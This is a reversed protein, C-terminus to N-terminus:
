SGGGFVDATFASYWGVAHHATRRRVEASEGVKSIFMRVTKIRGGEPVFTLANTFADHPALFTYCSNFLHPPFQRSGTLSAAIAFACAKAQSNASFASKPMDGGIISDGVVHIGPQLTSEFTVPDVPCWGSADTLGAKEGILGAKQAPIINAVAARFTEGETVVSRAAVDVAKIAGIFQSPLWEIMGPYHRSWADQFLEQGSFKDKADLILIKSKPKFQKFYYAVLSAREYPAPPCRFPNPPAAIVFVGGDDMSKLQRRLLESQPGAIWAHPMIKAAAEDYGEIEGFKFAIGPAVVLRDYSLKTGGRLEVARGAPDIAVASDRIITIGHGEALMELGFTLSALSRLGALYLNSSFCTVHTSNPEVLTVDISKMDGLYRAVTAGGIGGGIVVVKARGQGRVIHPAALALLAGGILGGIQRRTWDTM